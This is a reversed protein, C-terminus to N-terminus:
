SLTGPGTITIIGEDDGFEALEEDIEENAGFASGAEVIVTAAMQASPTGQTQDSVERKVRIGRLATPVFEVIVTCM